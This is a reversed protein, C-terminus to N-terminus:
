DRTWTGCSGLMGPVIKGWIRPLATYRFSQRLHLHRKWGCCPKQSKTTTLSSICMEGAYRKQRTLGLTAPYRYMTASRPSQIKAAPSDILISPGFNASAHVVGKCGLLWRGPKYHVGRIEMTKQGNLIQEILGAHKYILIRQGNAPTESQSM